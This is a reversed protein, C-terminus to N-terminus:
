RRFRRRLALLLLTLQGPVFMTELVVFFRGWGGAPEYLRARQFTAVELSFLVTERAVGLLHASAGDDTGGQKRAASWSVERWPSELRVAPGKKDFVVAEGDRLTLGACGYFFFPFLLFVFFLLWGFARRYSTGYFSLLRYLFIASLHEGLWTHFRTPWPYYRAKGAPGFIFREPDRRRMEMEGIVCEEALEYQRNREFNLVLRRYAQAVLEHTPVEARQLDEEDQLFLRGEKKHWRADEFRFPDSLTNQFRLKLGPIQITKTPWESAPRGLLNQQEAAERDPVRVSERQNIRRLIIQADRVFPLNSLNLVGAIAAGSFDADQTFTARSFYADLTFKAWDFDASQTFTAESFDANQTFTALRFDANQTFTAGRFDADQTFTAGVFRANQTFKAWRFEADQTFEALSFDASQTFTAGVFRANQTFKAESFNANQSFTAGIFKANQSFTARSFDAKRRFEAKSFNADQSFTARRFICQAHFKNESFNARPFVFETFDAIGRRAEKLIREFERQFDDKRKNPDRSHMLCVPKQDVDAPASHIARGCPNKDHM